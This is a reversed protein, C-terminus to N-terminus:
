VPITDGLSSHVLHDSLCFIFTPADYFITPSCFSGLLFLTSFSTPMSICSSSNFSLHWASILNNRDSHCCGYIWLCVQINSPTIQSFRQLSEATLPLLPLFHDQHWQQLFDSEIDSRLLLWYYLGFSAIWALITFSWFTTARTWGLPTQRLSRWWFALGIGSLIFVSSMSLWPSLVGIIIWHRWQYNNQKNLDNYAILILLVTVMMDSSYQKASTGYLIALGSLSFLALSFVQAFLHLNWTKILKWFIVLAILGALLPWLRLGYEGQGLLLTNLKLLSLFVPPAYQHYDLAQFFGEFSREAVNRVLNAEDLYLSRNCYYEWIRLGIGLFLAGM